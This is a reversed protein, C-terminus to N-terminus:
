FLTYVAVPLVTTTTTVALGFLGVVVVVPVLWWLGHASAFRSVDRALRVSHRARMVVRTGLGLSARRTSTVDTM